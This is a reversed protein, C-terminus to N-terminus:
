SYLHKVFEPIKKDEEEDNNKNMTDILNILSDLYCDLVYLTGVVILGIEGVLSFLM